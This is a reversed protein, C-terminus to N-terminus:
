ENEVVRFFLDDLDSGFAQFTFNTSDGESIVSDNIENGFGILDTSSFVSYSRNKRSNWTM